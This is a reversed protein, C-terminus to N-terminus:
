GNEEGFRLARGGRIALQQAVRMLIQLGAEQGFLGDFRQHV